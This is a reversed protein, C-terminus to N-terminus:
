SQGHLSVFPLAACRDDSTQSKGGRERDEFKRRIRAELVVDGLVEQEEGSRSLDAGAGGTPTKLSVSRSCLVHRELDPGAVNALQEGVQARTADGRRAVVHEEEENCVVGFVVQAELNAM